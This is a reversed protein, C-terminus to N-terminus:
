GDVAQHLGGLWVASAVALSAVEGEHGVQDCAIENM